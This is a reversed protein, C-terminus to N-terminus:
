TLYFKSIGKKLQFKGGEKNYIEPLQIQTYAAKM